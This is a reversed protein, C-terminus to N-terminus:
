WWGGGGSDIGENERTQRIHAKIADNVVFSVSVAIPGKLWNMSLGKYLGATGETRYTRLLADAVSKYQISPTHKATGVQMRRRAIDLPYTASQAFLGAVGGFALRITTPVDRDRELGYREKYKSKLTGFTAFSLGAYPVIGLLTPTLGNWLAYVSEHKVILRFASHYNSYRPELDWHAAM